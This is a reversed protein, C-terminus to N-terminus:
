IYIYKHIYISIRICWILTSEMRKLLLHMHKKVQQPSIYKHIFMYTVVIYVCLDVHMYICSIYYISYIICTYTYKFTM